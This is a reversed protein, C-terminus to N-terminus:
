RKKVGLSNFPSPLLCWHWSIDYFLLSDSVRVGLLPVYGKWLSRVQTQHLRLIWSSIQLFCMPRLFEPFQMMFTCDAFDLSHSSVRWVSEEVSLRLSFLPISSPLLNFLGLISWIGLILLLLPLVLSTNVSACTSSLAMRLLRLSPIRIFSSCHNSKSPLHPRHTAQPVHLFM